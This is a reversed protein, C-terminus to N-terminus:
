MQPEQETLLEQRYSELSMGTQAQCYDEMKAFLQDQESENLPYSFDFENGDSCNLVVTLFKEPEGTELDFGAYLNIWDDNSDLTVRTGFVTDPDFTVPIYFSLRGQFESIDDEFFIRQLDLRCDESNLKPPMGGDQNRLDAYLDNLTKEYRQQCYTGMETGLLEQESPSLAYTFSKKRTGDKRYLTLELHDRVEQRLVDYSAFIDLRSGNENHKVAPGFVEMLVDNSACYVQFNLMHGVLNASDTFWLDGPQLERLAKLSTGLNQGTLEKGELRAIFKQWREEKPSQEKRFAHYAAASVDQFWYSKWGDMINIASFLQKDFDLEFVGAVRGTNELREQTLEMFRSAPIEYGGQIKRVFAEAGGAGDQLYKRLLRAADLFEKSSETALCRANGNELLRFASFVKRAERERQDELNEQHIIAEIEKVQDEPVMEQYLDVLYTQLYKEISTGQKALAEELANWRHENLWVEASFSNSM